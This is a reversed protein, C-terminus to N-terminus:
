NRVTAHLTFCDSRSLQDMEIIKGLFSKDTRDYARAQQSRFKGFKKIIKYDHVHTFEVAFYRITKETLNM